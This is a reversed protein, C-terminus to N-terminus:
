LYDSGGAVTSAFVWAKLPTLAILILSENGEAQFCEKEECSILRKIVFKVLGNEIM